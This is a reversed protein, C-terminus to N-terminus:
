NKYETASFNDAIYTCLSLAKNVLMYNIGADYLEAYFAHSENNGNHVDAYTRLKEKYSNLKAKNQEIYDKYNIDAFNVSLRIGPNFDHGRIVKNNNAFTNQDSIFVIGAKGCLSLAKERYTDTLKYNNEKFWSHWTYIINSYSEYKQMLPWIDREFNWFPLSSNSPGKVDLRIFIRNACVKIAEELTPIKYPTIKASDGGTGNKLNLQMLQDYTWESVDYSTPLGNKGAMEAVNTTRTLTADHLLIFVGDKTLRPDIEVMDCGMMIASIIGEISNEPYYVMDGRHACSMLRAAPDMSAAYKEDFDLMWDPTDFEMAWHLPFSEIDNVYDRSAPLTYKLALDSLTYATKEDSLNEILEACGMGIATKNPAILHLSKGSVKIEFDDVGFGTATGSRSSSGIVIEHEATENKDPSLTFRVGTIKGIRDAFIKAYDSYSSGYVIVYDSLPTGDITVGTKAYEALYTDRLNGPLELSTGTVYKEIFLEIARVVADDSGGGIVLRNGIVAIVSDSYGLGELAAGSEDRNTGGVVIEYAYRSAPDTGPKEFDDALQISVGYTDKIANRLQTFAETIEKSTKESRVLKYETAGNAIFTINGVEPAETKEESLSPEATNDGSEGTCSSLILCVCVIM